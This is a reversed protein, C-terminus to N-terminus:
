RGRAFSRGGLTACGLARALFGLPYFHGLGFLDQGQKSMAFQDEEAVVVLKLHVTFAASIEHACVAPLALKVVRTLPRM